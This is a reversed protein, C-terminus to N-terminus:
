EVEDAIVFSALIGELVRDPTVPRPSITITLIHRELLVVIAESLPLMQSHLRVAPHNAFTIVEGEVGYYVREYENLIFGPMPQAPAAERSALWEQFIAAPSGGSPLYSATIFLNLAGDGLSVMGAPEVFQYNRVFKSQDHGSEDWGPPLRYRVGVDQM